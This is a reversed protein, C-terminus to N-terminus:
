CLEEKRMILLLMKISEFNPFIHLIEVVWPCAAVVCKAYANWLQLQSLLGQSWLIESLLLEGSEAVPMQM